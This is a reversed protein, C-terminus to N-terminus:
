YFDAEKLVNFGDNKNKGFVKRMLKHSAKRMVSDMIDEIDEESLGNRIGYEDDIRAYLALTGLDDVVYNNQKAYDKAYKVWENIDYDKVVIQNDFMQDLDPYDDLIRNLSDGEDELVVIMDDTYYQMSDILEEIAYENLLGANEIILDSGILKQMYQSIGKKNFVQANVKAIKRGIRERRKNVTKLIDIALTTKGSKEDGMVVINGATSAGDSVYDETLNIITKVIKNQLGAVNVFNSFLDEEEKSLFGEYQEELGGKKITREKGHQEEDFSASEYPNSDDVEEDAEEIQKEIEDDNLDTPSQEDHFVRDEVTDLPKDNVKKNEIAKNIDDENLNIEATDDIKTGTLKIDGAAAAMALGAAFEKAFDEEVEKAKKDAITNVKPDVVDSLAMGKEEEGDLAKLDELGEEDELEDLAQEESKSYESVSDVEPEEEAEVKDEEPRAFSSVVEPKITEETDEKTEETNIEKVEDFEEEVEEDAKSKAKMEFDDEYDDVFGDDEDKENEDLSESINLAFLRSFRSIFGRKPEEKEETFDNLEVPEGDMAEDILTEGALISAVSSEDELDDEKVEENKKPIEREVDNVSKIVEIPKTDGLSKVDEVPKIDEVPAVEETVLKIDEVSTAEETVPKIIDDLPNTDEVPKDNVVTILGTKKDITMVGVLAETEPKEVDVKEVSSAPEEATTVAEEVSKEEESIDKEEEAVEALKNEAAERAAEAKEEELKALTEKVRNLDATESIIDKSVVVESMGTLIEETMDIEPINDIIYNTRELKSDKEADLDSKSDSNKEIVLDGPKSISKINSIDPIVRTASLDATKALSDSEPIEVKPIEVKPVEVKPPEVKPAENKKKIDDINMRPVYVTPNPVGLSPASGLANVGPVNVGFHIGGTKINTEKHHEEPKIDEVPKAKKKAFSESEEYDDIFGDDDVLPNNDEVTEKAFASVDSNEEDVSVESVDVGETTEEAMSSIADNEFEAAAKAIEEEAISQAAVFASEAAAEEVAAEANDMTKVTADVTSSALIGRSELDRLVEELSLQGTLQNIDKEEDTYSAFDLHMQGQIQSDDDNMVEELNRALERQMKDEDYSDHMIRMDEYALPQNQSYEPINGNVQNNDYAFDTGYDVQESYEPQAQYYDESQDYGNNIAHRIDGIRKTAYEDMLGDQYYQGNQYANDAPYAVENEYYDNNTYYGDEAYDAKEDIYGRGEDGYIDGYGFRDFRRDYREQQGRTLPKYMKKLEMAKDVYEGENFWLSIEDCQAVCSEIDGAEHYLKALEYGWREDMEERNFAELIPILSNVDKGKGKEIKYKLIYQANDHPAMDVFDRYFDEADIYDKLKISLVSLRYALQRGMPTREYACLLVQKAKDYQRNAEYADAVTILMSNSKVKSWDITDAIKAAVKYDKKAVMKKIQDSKIGYEYKDM